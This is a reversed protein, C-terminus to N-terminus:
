DKFLEKVLHEGGNVLFSCQENRLVILEGTEASVASIHNDSWVKGIIYTELYEEPESQMNKVRTKSVQVIDGRQLARDEKERYFRNDKQKTM